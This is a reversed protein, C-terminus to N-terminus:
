HTPGGLLQLIGIALAILIALIPLLVGLYFTLEEKSLRKTRQRIRIFGTVCVTLFVALIDFGVQLGYSNCRHEYVNLSIEQM